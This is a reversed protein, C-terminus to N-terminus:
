SEAGSRGSTHYEIWDLRSASIQWDVRPVALVNCHPGIEQIWVDLPPHLAINPRPTSHPDDLRRLLQRVIAAKVQSLFSSM